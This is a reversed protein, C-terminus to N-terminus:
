SRERQMHNYIQSRILLLETKRQGWGSGVLLPIKLFFHYALTQSQGYVHKYCVRSLYSPNHLVICNFKYEESHHKNYFSLFKHLPNQVDRHLTIQEIFSTARLGLRLSDRVKKADQSTGNVFRAQTVEFQSLVM